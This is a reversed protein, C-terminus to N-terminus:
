RNHVEIALVNNDEGAQLYQIAHDLPIIESLWWNFVWKEAYTSRCDGDFDVPLVVAPEPLSV